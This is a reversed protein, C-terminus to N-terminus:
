RSRHRSFQARRSLLRRPVSGRLRHAQVPHLRGDRCLDHSIERLASELGRTKFISRRIRLKVTECRARADNRPGM